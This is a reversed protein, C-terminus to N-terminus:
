VICVRRWQPSAQGSGPRLSGSDLEGDSTRWNV